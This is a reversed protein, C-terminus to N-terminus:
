STPTPIPSPQPSPTSLSPGAPPSAESPLELPPNIAQKTKQPSTLNASNTAENLTKQKKQLTELDSQVLKYDSSDKPTLTLVTNMASIAQDFQNKAAYAAALNYYGNAFDNKALIAFQFTSIADDYKGLSFYIGGLSIRLNPDVPDLTITQSYSQIAFSDAQNALPILTQYISALVQWNAARTPNLSVTAQGERIAQQVLQMITNKEEDTLDKPDKKASIMSRAIALNVQAYSAHYRDVTPNLNIAQQLFTYTDQGNNASLADSAQRFSYEASLVPRAKLTLLIMGAIIALVLAIKVTNSGELSIIQQKPQSNLSLFVFILLLTVPAAPLFGVVLLLIILITLPLVDIILSHSERYITINKEILKVIAFLLIGLGIAGFIGTETLVTLYWDRGISFKIQWFKTLNYSVPRFRNFATLYNGPGIGLAPSERITDVAVSWSTVFDPLLPLANKNSFLTFISIGGAILIFVLCLAFVLKQTIEKGKVLFVIVFPLTAVLFISSTLYDGTPNFLPTKLFSPLQSIKEFVGLFSCFILFSMGLASAVLTLKIKNKDAITNLLFYTIGLGIFLTANGPSFFAENKNPTMFLGSALYSLCLVIVALDFKGKAFSLKGTLYIQFASIVLYLCILFVLIIIKPLGVVDIFSGAFVLPFLFVIALVLFEKIKDIQKIM